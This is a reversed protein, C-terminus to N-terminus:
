ILKILEPYTYNLINVVKTFIQYCVAATNFFKLETDAMITLENSTIM